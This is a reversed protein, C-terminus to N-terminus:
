HQEPDVRLSRLVRSVMNYFAITATLEMIEQDSFHERVSAFTADDADFDRTVQEAYGLVARQKGTFADSSRWSALQDIQTQSVGEKVAIPAHAQWEYEAGSIQAVRCIALERMDGSLSSEMRVATGIHLWGAAVAPSNLLLRYLNLVRGGRERKIQQVLPKLEDAVTDPHVLPIRALSSSREFAFHL